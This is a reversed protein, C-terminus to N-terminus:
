AWSKKMSKCSSFVVGYKTKALEDPKQALGWYDKLFCQFLGSQTLCVLHALFIGFGANSVVSIVLSVVHVKSKPFYKKYRKPTV